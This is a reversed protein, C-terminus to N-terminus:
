GQKEMRLLRLPKIIITFRLDPARIAAPLVKEALAATSVIVGKAGSDTLVHLHDNVGNTTYAPVSIAGAAM